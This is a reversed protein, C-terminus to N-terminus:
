EDYMFIGAIIYIIGAIIKLLSSVFDSFIHQIIYVAYNYQYLISSGIEQKKM